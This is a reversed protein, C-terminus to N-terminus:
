EHGRGALPHALERQRAQEREVLWEAVEAYEKAKFVPVTERKEKDFREGVRLGPSLSRRIERLMLHARDVIRGPLEDMERYRMHSQVGNDLLEGKTLGRKEIHLAILQLSCERKLAQYKRWEPHQPCIHKFSVNEFRCLKFDPVKTPRTAFEKVQRIAESCIYINYRVVDIVQVM